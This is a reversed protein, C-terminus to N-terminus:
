FPIDDDPGGFGSDNGNLNPKGTLAQPEYDEPFYALDKDKAIWEKCIIGNVNLNTKGPIYSKIQSKPIWAEVEDGDEDEGIFLIARDTEVRGNSNEKINGYCKVYVDPANRRM